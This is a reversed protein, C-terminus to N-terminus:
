RQNTTDIQEFVVLLGSSDQDVVVSGKVEQIDIGGSSDRVWVDGAIGTVDILAPTTYTSQAAMPAAYMPMRGIASICNM